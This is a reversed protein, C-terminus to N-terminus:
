STKVARFYVSELPSSLLMTGQVGQGWLIGVAGLPLDYLLWWIRRYDCIIMWLKAIGECIRTSIGQVGGRGPATGPLCAM